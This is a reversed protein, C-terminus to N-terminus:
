ARRRARHPQAAGDDPRYGKANIRAITEALKGAPWTAVHLLPGFWEQTLDEIADLRILTPPVFLGDAPM